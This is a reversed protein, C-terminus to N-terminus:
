AQRAAKIIEKLRPRKGYMLLGIRFVKGFLKISVYISGILLLITLFVEWIPVKGTANRIIMTLPSTLPIYSFIRAITSNPEEIILMIFVMPIVSPLTWMITLQQSEKLNSGLSGTGAMLSGFLLFGLIYYVIAILVTTFKINLVALWIIAPISGISLWVLMQLFGAGGLGLLKGLLLEDPRISSLIIEIVRSEKEEAVGQLLFGSSMMISILLLMGFALPVAITGIERVINKEVFKGEEMTFEVLKLPRHVREQIQPDVRGSLLSMILLKRMFGSKGKRTFISAEGTYSLVEGSEIYNEPIVYYMFIRGSRMAEEAEEGSGYQIPEVGKLLSEFLKREKDTVPLKDIDGLMTEFIEQSEEALSAADKALEFKVVDSLDVIGVARKQMEKKHLIIGPISVIGMYILLFFPMGFTFILYAKRRITVKFERKAVIIAKNM